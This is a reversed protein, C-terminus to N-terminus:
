GKNHISKYVKQVIGTTHTYVMLKRLFLAAEKRLGKTRIHIGSGDDNGINTMYSKYPTIAVMNNALMYYFCQLDWMDGYKNWTSYGYKHELYTM